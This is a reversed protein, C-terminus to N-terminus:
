KGAHYEGDFSKGSCDWDDGSFKRQQIYGDCNSGREDDGLMRGNRHMGSREVRCIDIRRCGDGDAGRGRWECLEGFMYDSL